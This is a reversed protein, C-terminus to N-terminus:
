VTIVDDATDYDPCRDDIESPEAHVAEFSDRRKREYATLRNWERMLEAKAEEKTTAQMVTEYIDGVTDVLFWEKM